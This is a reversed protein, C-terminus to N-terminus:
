FNELYPFLYTSIESLGMQIIIKNSNPMYQLKPVRKVLRIFKTLKINIEDVLRYANEYHGASVFINNSISLTGGNGNKGFLTIEYDEEVNFWTKQYKIESLGVEWSGNLSLKQPLPTIYNAATNDMQFPTSRRVNSPLIINFNERDMTACWKTKKTFKKRKIVIGVSLLIVCIIWVVIYYKWFHKNM